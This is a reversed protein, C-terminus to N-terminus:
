TFVDVVGVVRSVANMLGTARDQLLTGEYSDTGSAPRRRLTRM